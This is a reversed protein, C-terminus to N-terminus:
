TMRMVCSDVSQCDACAAPATDRAHVICSVCVLAASCWWGPAASPLRVTGSTSDDASSWALTIDFEFGHRKKGRVFWIHADGTLSSVATVRAAGDASAVGVLRQRLLQQAWDTVGREEFTGAQTVLVYM